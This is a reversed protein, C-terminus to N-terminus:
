ILMYYFQRKKTHLDGFKLEWLSKHLWTVALFCFLGLLGFGSEPQGAAAVAEGLGQCVSRHERWTTRELIDYLTKVTTFCM